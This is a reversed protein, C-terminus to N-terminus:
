QLKCKSLENLVRDHIEEITGVGDVHAAKVGTESLYGLIPDIEKHYTALRENISDPTDDDRGRLEMRKLLEEMNVDFNIALQIPIDLSVCEEVLWHAQNIQRPYGDLILKEVGVNDALAEHLVENVKEFPVLVGKRQFEHTEENPTDRLLQGISLWKWGNEDVLAQAQASKGSGAPGFFLIM